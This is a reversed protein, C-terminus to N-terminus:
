RPQLGCVRFGLDSVRRPSVVDQFYLRSLNADLSL